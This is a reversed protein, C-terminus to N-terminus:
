NRCPRLQRLAPDTQCLLTLQTRRPATALPRKKTTSKPLSTTPPTPGWGPDIVGTLGTNIHHLGTGNTNVTFLDICCLDTFPRDSVFAIRDGDPAFSSAFDSHPYRPHTLHQAHEGSPSTTWIASHIRPANTNFVIRQGTPSWDGHVAELIPPTIAHANTGDGNMVWEQAAIGGANFRTFAVRGDGAVSPNFDIAEHRGTKYHTLARLQSGNSRMAYIACVGDNPLCRSFVIHSGDRTYRPQYDRFGPQDGAVQRAGSGDANMIWIRGNDALSNALVLTFLIHSGDPSWSPWQAAHQSDTHTLQSLGSGSPNISYIQRTNFDWFAIRGDHGLFAAHSTASMTTLGFLMAVVAVLVWRRLRLASVISEGTMPRGWDSLTANPHTTTVRTLGTGTTNITYVDNCCQNPYSADSILVLKMGDPSYSAFGAQHPARVHTVQRVHSGDSRMIFVQSYPLCCDRTFAIHSGNPSWSPWFAELSPATLRRLRSGNANMVWVASLFGGRTSDFAIRRGDPSFRPDADAWHGGTLVHLGTGSGTIESITCYGSMSACRSFVIWKGDPSWRPTFDDECGPDHLLRHQNSGDANM